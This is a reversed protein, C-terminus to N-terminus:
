KLQALWAPQNFNLSAAEPPSWGFPAGRSTNCLPAPAGPAGRTGVGIYLTIAQTVKRVVISISARSVYDLQM